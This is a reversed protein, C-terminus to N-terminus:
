SGINKDTCRPCNVSKRIVEETIRYASSMRVYECKKYNYYVRM